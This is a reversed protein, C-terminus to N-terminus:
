FLFFRTVSSFALVNVEFIFLYFFLFLSKSEDATWEM